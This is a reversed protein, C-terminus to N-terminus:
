RGAASAALYILGGITVSGIRFGAGLVWDHGSDEREYRNAGATLAIVDLWGLAVEFAYGDAYGVSVDAAFGWKGLYRRYRAAYWVSGDGKEHGGEVGLYGATAGYANYGDHVLLGVDVSTVTKVKDGKVGIEVLMTSSCEFPRGAFCVLHEPEKKKPPPAAQPPYPQPPYPQPPSPPYQQPPPPMNPDVIPGTDPPTGPPPPAPAPQPAPQGYAVGALVIVVWPSYRAAAGM